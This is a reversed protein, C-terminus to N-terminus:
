QELHIEKIRKKAHLIEAGLNKLHHVFKENSIINMKNLEVKWTYSVELFKLLVASKNLM